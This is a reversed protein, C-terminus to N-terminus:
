QLATSDIAQALILSGLSKEQDLEPTNIDKLKCDLGTLGIMVSADSVMMIEPIFNAAGNNFGKKRETKMAMTQQGTNVHNFCFPM